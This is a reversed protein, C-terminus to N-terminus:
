DESTVDENGWVETLVEAIRSLAQPAAMGWHTAPVGYTVVRGDVCDRWTAAGIGGSPDEELAAFYVVDGKFRPPQYGDIMEHARDIAHVAKSIRQAGLANFPEPLGAVIEALVDESVEDLSVNGVAGAPGDIAGAPVLGGLLDGVTV